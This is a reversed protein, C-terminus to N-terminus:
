INDKGFILTAISHRIGLAVVCFVFQGVMLTATLKDERLPGLNVLTLNM